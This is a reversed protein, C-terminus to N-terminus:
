TNKEFELPTRKQQASVSFYGGLGFVENEAIYKERVGDSNTEAAGFVFFVTSFTCNAIHLACNHFLDATGVKEM